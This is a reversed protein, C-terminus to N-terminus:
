HSREVVGERVAIAVAELKSHASLKSLIRQVHQRITNVSVFLERAMSPTTTGTVLLALVERERATLDAGVSHHNKGLRPMLRSILQTPIYPDGAALQRVAAVLEATTEDQTIFGTCGADVAASLTGEDRPRTLVLIQTTPNANLIEAAAGAGSQDPFSCGVIAVDPRAREAQHVASRVDFACGIVELDLEAALRTSLSDVFMKHSDVILIRIPSVPEREHEEIPSLVEPL